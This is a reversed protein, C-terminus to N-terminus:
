DPNQELLNKVSVASPVPVTYDFKGQVKDFEARSSGWTAALQLKAALLAKERRQLEIHANAIEVDARSLEVPSTRGANVLREINSKLDENLQVIERSLTVREQEALVNNFAIVVETYVDLRKSQYDWASIDGSLAAVDAQKVRKGSIQILQGVSITTEASKFSNYSGGGAFNEVEAMLTPNPFLAAQVAAAERARIELSFASLQPNRMLALQLAQPLTIIGTPEEATDSTDEAIASYESILPTEQPKEATSRTAACSFLAPLVALLWLYNRKM